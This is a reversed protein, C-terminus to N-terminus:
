FFDIRVIWQFSQHQLQLELVKAVQHSSSIWQFLSQHKSLNFAPPSPSSLPHSLQIAESVWHIHTQVVEPLQHLVPFGPTSCDMIDCFTLCSQSVSSFQVPFIGQLLSLSGMGTSHGLSNWPSYLRRLRLFDSLKWESVRDWCWPRKWHTLEECSHGFYQLKLKLMLGELSYEPKIEKLISKNSRRATWLIRLDEEAGCNSIM